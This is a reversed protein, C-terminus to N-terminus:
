ICIYARHCFILVMERLVWRDDDPRGRSITAGEKRNKGAIMCIQGDPSTNMNNNNNNGGPITARTTMCINYYAYLTQTLNKGRRRLIYSRYIVRMNYQLIRQVRLRFGRGYTIAIGSLLRARDDSPFAAAVRVALLVLVLVLVLRRRRLRLRRHPRYVDHHLGSVSTRKGGCRWECRM